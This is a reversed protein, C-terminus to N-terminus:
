VNKPKITYEFEGIEITILDFDRNNQEFVDLIEQIIKLETNNM